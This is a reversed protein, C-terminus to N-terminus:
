RQYILLKRLNRVYLRVTGEAIELSKYKETLWDFVQAASMEPHERLWSLIIDKYPDLKKVRKESDEMWKAMEKPNRKLYRYVTTRSIGLKDAVKVKSFGQSLLQQIEMYM